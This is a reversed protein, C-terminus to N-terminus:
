SRCWNPYTTSWAATTRRTSGCLTTTGVSKGFLYLMRSSKASVDAIGPNAIFVSAMARDLRLLQGESLEIIIPDGNTLVARGQLVAHSPGAAVIATLLITAAIWIRSFVRMFEGM